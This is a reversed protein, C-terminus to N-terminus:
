QSGTPHKDPTKEIQRNSVDIESLYTTQGWISGGLSLFLLLSIIYKKM